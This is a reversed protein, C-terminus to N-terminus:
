KGNHAEMRELLAPLSKRVLEATARAVVREIIEDKRSYVYDKVAKETSKRVGWKAERADYSYAKIISEAIKQEILTAIEADNVTITIEAM